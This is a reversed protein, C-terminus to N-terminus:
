FQGKGRARAQVPRVVQGLGEVLTLLPGLSHPFEVKIYVESCSQLHDHGAIDSTNITILHRQDWLPKLIPNTFFMRNPNDINENISEVKGFGPKLPRCGGM